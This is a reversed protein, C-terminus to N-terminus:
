QLKRNWGSVPLWVELKIDSDSTPKAEAVVRCFAPLSKYFASMDAGTFPAPPGAFTGAAATQALTITTKDIAVGALKECADDAFTITSATLVLCILCLAKKMPHWRRVFD